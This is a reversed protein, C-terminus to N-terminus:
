RAAGQITVDARDATATQRRRQELANSAPTSWTENM